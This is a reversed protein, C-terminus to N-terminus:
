NLKLSWLPWLFDSKLNTRKKKLESKEKRNITRFRFENENIENLYTIIKMASLQSKM